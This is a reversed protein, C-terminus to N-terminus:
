GYERHSFTGTLAGAQPRALGRVCSFGDTPCSPQGGSGCQACESTSLVPALSCSRGPSLGGSGRHQARSLVGGSSAVTCPPPIEKMLTTEPPVSCVTPSTLHKIITGRCASSRETMECVLRPEVRPAEAGSGTPLDRLAGASKEASAPPPAGQCSHCEWSRPFCSLLPWWSTLLGSGPGSRQGSDRGAAAPPM